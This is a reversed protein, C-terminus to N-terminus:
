GKIDAMKLIETLPNVGPSIIFIFPTKYDSVKYSGKLNFAPFDCFESGYEKGILYMLGPIVKDPAIINIMILKHFHDWLEAIEGPWDLVEYPKPHNSIKEWEDLMKPFEKDLGEFAPLTSVEEITCWMKNTVWGDKGTPNPETPTSKTGGVAL